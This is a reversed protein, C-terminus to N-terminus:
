DECAWCYGPQGFTVTCFECENLLPSVAASAEVDDEQSGEDDAEDDTQDAPGGFFLQALGGFFRVALGRIFAWM